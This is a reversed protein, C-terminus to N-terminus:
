LADLVNQLSVYGPNTSVSYNNLYNFYRTITQGVGNEKYSYSTVIYLDDLSTGYPSPTTDVNLLNVGVSDSTDEYTLDEINTQTVSGLSIFNSGDDYYITTTVTTDTSDTDEDILNTLTFYQYVNIDDGVQTVEFPSNLEPDNDFHMELIFGRDNVSMEGYTGPLYLWDDTGGEYSSVAICFEYIGNTNFPIQTFTYQSYTPFIDSIYDSTQRYGITGGRKRYLLFMYAEQPDLYEFADAPIDTITIEAYQDANIRITKNALSASRADYTMSYPAPAGGNYGDFDLIRQLENYARGRPRLYDWAGANAKAKNLCDTMSRAVIGGDAILAFNFGYFANVRDASTIHDTKSSRIPKVASWVNLSSANFMDSAYYHGDSRASVNLVGAIESLTLTGNAPKYIINGTRM